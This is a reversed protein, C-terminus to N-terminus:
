SRKLAVLGPRPDIDAWGPVTVFFPTPDVLIPAAFPESAGPTVITAPPVPLDVQNEPPPTPPPPAQPATTCAAALLLACLAALRAIGTVPNCPPASPPRM